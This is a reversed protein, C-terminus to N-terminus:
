VGREQQGERFSDSVHLKIEVGAERLFRVLSLCLSFMFPTRVCVRYSKLVKLGHFKPVKNLTGPYIEADGPKYVKFVQIFNTDYQQTFITYIKIIEFFILFIFLCASLFFPTRAFYKQGKSSGPISTIMSSM